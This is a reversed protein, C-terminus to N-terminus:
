PIRQAQKPDAKLGAYQDCFKKAHRELVKDRLVEGDDDSVQLYVKVADSCQRLHKLHMEEDNRPEETVNEPLQSNITADKITETENSATTTTETMDKEGKQTDNENQTTQYQSEFVQDAM